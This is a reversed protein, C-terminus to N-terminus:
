PAPRETRQDGGAVADLWGALQAVLERREFRGALDVSRRERGRGVLRELGDAVAEPRVDVTIGWDLGDLVDRLDGSPAMALVVKHLGIAEYLKGGVFLEMGPLDGLLVLAADSDALARLAAARPMFGRLELVRERGPQRSWSALLAECETSVHGIFQIRLRDIGPARRALAVGLGALFVELEAPRDLTGSYTIRIEPSAVPQDAPRAGVLETLESRDYGNPWTVFRVAFEPYRAEYLRTLRPMAFTVRDAHSIIWREVHRMLWAHVRPRDAALVNGVWPDRFDAIWPRRGIVALTGAVLHATIPSSTSWIASPRDRRLARAGAVVAFPYWGIQEDPFLVLDATRGLLGRLRKVLAAKFRAPAGSRAGADGSPRASDIGAAPTRWQGPEVIRARVVHTELPVSALGAEDRLPYGPNEPALVTTAWGHSPLHRAIATVRPVSVGGVPPFFYSVLLVRRTM